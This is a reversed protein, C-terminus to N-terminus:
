EALCATGALVQAQRVVELPSNVAQMPTTILRALKPNWRVTSLKKQLRKEKKGPM